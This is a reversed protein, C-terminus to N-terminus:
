RTWALAALAAAHLDANAAIVVRDARDAPGGSWDSIVGGAAEILPVLAQVDWPKLTAEIVIDAHGAAVLCPTYCDGGWRVGRVRAALRDFAERMAATHFMTPDTACVIARDLGTRRHAHLPQRAEGRHFWAGLASGVYTEDVYPQRMVGVIPRAGDHLALLTGWHLQGLVFARTGDIPDIAWTYPSSGREHGREEGLIGHDPFVRAIEARIADEGARDGATVPDFAGHLGKNEVEPNARFFPLIAEGALRVAHIAFEVYDDLPPM